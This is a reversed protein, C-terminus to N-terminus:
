HTIYGSTKLGAAVKQAMDRNLGNKSSYRTGKGGIEATWIPMNISGTYFLYCVVAGNLTTFKDQYAGGKPTLVTYSHEIHSYSRLGTVLIGDIGYRDICNRFYTYSNNVTDFLDSAKLVSTGPTALNNSIINEM